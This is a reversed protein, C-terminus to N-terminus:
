KTLLHSCINFALTFSIRKRIFDRYSPLFLSNYKIRNDRVFENFDEILILQKEKSIPPTILLTAYSRASSRATEDIYRDEDDVFSLGLKVDGTDDICKLHINTINTLKKSTAREIKYKSKSLNYMEGGITYNNEEDFKLNLEEESPYVYCKLRDSGVKNGFQISCIPTDTDDFVKEEFINLIKVHFKDFFRKRLNIDAKTM